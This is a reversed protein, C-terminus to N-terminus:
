SGHPWTNRGIEFLSRGRQRIAEEDWSVIDQFYRNLALASNNLIAPRKLEFAANAVATNLPQTLLTLNGFTHMLTDRIASADAEPKRDGPNLREYWKVGAKGNPLPWHAIWEQPLVHEVTVPSKIEVTESTSRRLSDELRRLVWQVRAPSLTEYVAKELWAKKLQEDNPWIGSEGQQELLISRLEKRGLKEAPLKGVM